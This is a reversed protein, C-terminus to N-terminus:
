IDCKDNFCVKQNEFEKERFDELGCLIPQVRRIFYANLEDQSYEARANYPRVSGSTPPDM